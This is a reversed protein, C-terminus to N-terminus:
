SKGAVAQLQRRRLLVSWVRAMADFVPSPLRSLVAANPPWAHTIVKVQHVQFGVETLLNRLLLPTWTYLHHNTDAADIQKQKRWDDLPLSLVLRGRPKLIRHLERLEDYPRLTHELAHNSIVVDAFGDPLDRPSEVVRLGRSIASGRAHPNPEIGVHEAGPLAELLWGGGTGFDVVTDDPGIHQDFKGVNLRAGLVGVMGQWAFYSEGEEGSYHQGVAAKV